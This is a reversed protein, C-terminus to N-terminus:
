YHRHLHSPPPLPVQPHLDASGSSAGGFSHGTHQYNPPPPLPHPYPASHGTPHYHPPPSHHTTQYTPAGTHSFIRGISHWPLSRLGTATAGSPCLSVLAGLGLIAVLGAAIPLTPALAISAFALGVTLSVKVAGKIWGSDQPQPSVHAGGSHFTAHPGQVQHAM